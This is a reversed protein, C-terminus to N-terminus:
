PTVKKLEVSVVETVSDLRELEAKELAQRARTVQVPATSFVAWLQEPGPADDLVISGPLEAPNGKLPASQGQGYPYYVTFKGAGDRSLLLLYTAGAGSVRFRLADGPFLPRGDGPAFQREGRKAFIEMRAGGKEGIYPEDLDQSWVFATLGWVSVAAGLAVPLTWRWGLFGRKRARATVAEVTRPFVYQQFHRHDSQTQELRHHCETCVQLHAEAEKKRPASLAKLAILDFVDSSLHATRNM